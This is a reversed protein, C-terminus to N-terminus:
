AAADAVTVLVSLLCKLYMKNFKEIVALYKPRPLVIELGYLLIPVVYIQYLHLPTEPDLGNEGHLGASMLSYLTRRAKIINESVTTEDTDSSRTIGLHTTKDVTPMLEGDMVLAMGSQNVRKRPGNLVELVASKVPQLKYVEVRYIWWLSCRWNIMVLWPSMM